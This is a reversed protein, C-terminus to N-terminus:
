PREPPYLARYLAENRLVARVYTRTELYGILEIFMDPDDAGTQAMWRRAPAPGANYAALAADVRGGFQRLLEALHAAGLHLNLDPITIWDARYAIDLGRATRSATGQVLQALGRAGAPSLADADFTSEHRVLAALLYPDVAGEAAELEVLRRAPWPYIARLVRPDHLTLTAAALWGLRVAPTGFGRAALGESLALAALPDNPARQVLQQVEARAESDLRVLMLTDIRALARAVAEPVPAPRVPSIAPLPLGVARRARSGYYGLSDDRALARWLTDAQATDGRAAAVRGLWFRAGRSLPGNADVESRWWGAASDYRAALFHVGALRFRAQSSRLDAPFRAVLDAYRLEATPTRGNETAVDAALYLATPAATDAPYTAAFASLATTAGPDGRRVMVRARRYLALAATSSDRAGALYAREAEVLRGAAVLLEGFLLLTAGGSDGAQVAREVQRLAEANQNRVRLARALAVRQGPSRPPLRGLAVDTAVTADDSAPARALLSYFQARAAASDGLELALQGGILSAGAGVALAFAQPVAGALRYSAIRARVAEAAPPPPLDALLRALRATDRTVRAERVRLWAEVSRLGLERARAYYGAASDPVGAVEFAVGARVALRAPASAGVLAADRAAVAIARSFREAAKLPFGRLLEAEGLVELAEGGRYDELWPQGVLLSQAREAHRARLEARATAVVLRANGLPQRAAFELLRQAAHWARGEAALSDAEVLM